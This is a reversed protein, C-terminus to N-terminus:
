ARVAVQAVMGVILHLRRLLSRPQNASNSLVFYHDGEVFILVM